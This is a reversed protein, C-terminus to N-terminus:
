AGNKYRFFMFQIYQSDSEDDLFLVDFKRTFLTSLISWFSFKIACFNLYKNSLIPFFFWFVCLEM